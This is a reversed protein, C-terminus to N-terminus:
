TDFTFTVDQDAYTTVKLNGGTGVFVSRFFQSENTTDSQTPVIADTAPKLAKNSDDQIRREDTSRSVARPLGRAAEHVSILESTPFHSIRTGSVWVPGGEGTFPHGKWPNKQKTDM